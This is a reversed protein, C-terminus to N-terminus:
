NEISTKSEVNRTSSSIQHTHSSSANSQIISAKSANLLSPTPPSVEISTNFSIKNQKNSNALAEVLIKNQNM